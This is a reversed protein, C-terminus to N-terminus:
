LQVECAAFTDTGGGGTCEDHLGGGNLLDNGTGGFLDDDGDNGFLQDNHNDGFLDDQGQGGHLRDNGDNGHLIDDGDDGYLLDDNLGGNVADQGSGGFLVDNGNGGNVTDNGDGGAIFDNGSGGNITDQGGLGLICDNGSTGTIVNNNSTGVIVNTGPPCCAANTNLVVTVTTTATAVRGASSTATFTVTSEGAFFSTPGSRTVTVTGCAVTATANPVSIAGCSTTTIPAPVFTFVPLPTPNVTITVTDVDRAGKADFAQLTIVHTGPSLNVTPNPGTAIQTTGELWVLTALNNNPDTTAFGDLTVSGQCVNQDPGANAIPPVNGFPSIASVMFSAEGHYTQGFVKFDVTFSGIIEAQQDVPDMAIIIPTPTSVLLAEPDGENPSAQLYARTGAPIVIGAGNDVAAVPGGISLFPFNVALGSGFDFDNFSARMLNLVYSCPHSPSAVCSADDAQLSVSGESLQLPVAAGNATASISAAQPNLAFVFDKRGLAASAASPAVVTAVCIAALLLWPRGVIRGLSRVLTPIM